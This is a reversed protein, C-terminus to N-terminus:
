TIVLLHLSVQLTVTSLSSMAKLEQLFFQKLEIQRMGESLPPPPPPPIKFFKKVPPVAGSPWVWVRKVNKVFYTGREYM